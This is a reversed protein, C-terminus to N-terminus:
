APSVQWSPKFDVSPASIEDLTPKHSTVDNDVPGRAGKRYRNLEPSLADAGSSAASMDRLHVRRM